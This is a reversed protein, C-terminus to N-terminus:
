KSVRVAWAVVQLARRLIEPIWRRKAATSRADRWARFQVHGKAVRFEVVHVLGCDCCGMKYGPKPEVWEGDRQKHYRISM